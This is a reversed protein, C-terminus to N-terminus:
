RRKTTWVGATIHLLENTKDLVNVNEGEEATSPLGRSGM